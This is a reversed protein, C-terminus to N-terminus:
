PSGLLEQIQEISAGIKAGHIDGSFPADFRFQRAQGLGNFFVWIGREPLRIEGAIPKNAGLTYTPADSVSLAQRVSQISDGIKLHIPLESRAHIFAQSLATCQALTVALTFCLVRVRTCQRFSMRTVKTAVMGIPHFM